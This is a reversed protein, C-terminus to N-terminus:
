QESLADVITFHKLMASAVSAATMLDVTTAVSRGEPRCGQERSGGLWDEGSHVHSRLTMATSVVSHCFSGEM